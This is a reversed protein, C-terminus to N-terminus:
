KKRLVFRFVGDEVSQEVLPNGTTQLAGESFDSATSAFASGLGVQVPGSNASSGKFTQYILDQFEAREHKFGTTNVNALNNSITDLNFQQAIMGTGATTLARMM